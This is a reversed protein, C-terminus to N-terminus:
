SPSQEAGMSKALADREAQIREKDGGKTELIDLVQLAQEYLGQVKYITALTFTALNPDIGPGASGLVPPTQEATPAAPQPESFAASLKAPEESEIPSPTSDATKDPPGTDQDRAPPGSDSYGPPRATLLEPGQRSASKAPGEGSQPRKGSVASKTARKPQSLRTSPRAKKKRAGREVPEPDLASIPAHSSSKEEAQLRVKRQVEEFMHKEAEFRDLWNRAKRHLPNAELLLRYVRELATHPRGLKEQVSVLVQCAAAHKKDHRLAEQLWREAEELHGEAMAVQALVFLGQVHNPHRALGVQCVKRARFLDGEELYIDALLPYILSGLDDAFHRELALKHARKDQAQGALEAAPSM